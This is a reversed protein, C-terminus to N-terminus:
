LRGQGVFPRSRCDAKLKLLGTLDYVFTEDRCRLHLLSAPGVGETFRRVEDDGSTVAGTAEHIVGVAGTEMRGDHLLKARLGRLITTCLEEQFIAARQAVKGLCEAHTGGVPDPAYAREGLVDATSLRRSSRPM